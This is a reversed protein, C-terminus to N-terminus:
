FLFNFSPEKSIIKPRSFLFYGWIKRKAFLEKGWWKSYTHALSLHVSQFSSSITTFLSIKVQALLAHLEPFSLGEETSPSLPNWFSKGGTTGLSCHCCDKMVSAMHCGLPIRSHGKWPPLGLSSNTAEMQPRFQTNNICFHSFLSAHAESVLCPFDVM